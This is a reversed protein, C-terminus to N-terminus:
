SGGDREEKSQKINIYLDRGEVAVERGDDHHISHSIWDAVCTGLRVEWGMMFVRVRTYEGMGWAKYGWGDVLRDMRWGVWRM